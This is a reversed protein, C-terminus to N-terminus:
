GKYQDCYTVEHLQCIIHQILGQYTFKILEFQEFHKLQKEM